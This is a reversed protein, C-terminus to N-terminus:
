GGTQFYLNVPRHPCRGRRCLTALLKTLIELASLIIRNTGFLRVCRYVCRWSPRATALSVKPMALLASWHICTRMKPALRIIKEARYVM